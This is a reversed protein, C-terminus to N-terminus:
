AAAAINSPASINLDKDIAALRYSRPGTTPEPWSTVPDGVAGRAWVVAKPQSQNSDYVLYALLRTPDAKSSPTWTWGGGAV